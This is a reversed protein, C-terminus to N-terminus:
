RADNQSASRYVQAALMQLRDGEDDSQEISERVPPVLTYKSQFPRNTIGNSNVAVDSCVVATERSGFSDTLRLAPQQEELSPSIGNPKEQGPQIKAEEGPSGRTPPSDRNGQLSNNEKGAGTRTSDAEMGPSKADGPESRRTEAEAEAEAQTGIPDRLEVETVDKWSCKAHKKTCGMCATLNKLCDMHLRRCRDCPPLIRDGRHLSEMRSVMEAKHPGGDDMAITSKAMPMLSAPTNPIAVQSPGTVGFSPSDDTSGSRHKSRTSSLQTVSQRTNGSSARRTEEEGRAERDATFFTKMLEARTTPSTGKISTGNIITVKETNASAFLLQAATTAPDPSAEAIADPASQRTNVATFGAPPSQSMSIGNAKSVTGNVDEPTPSSQCNLVPGFM